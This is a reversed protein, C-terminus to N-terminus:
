RELTIFLICCKHSLLGGCYLVFDIYLCFYFSFFFVDLNQRGGVKGDDPEPIM